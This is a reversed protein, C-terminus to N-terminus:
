RPAGPDRPQAGPRWVSVHYAVGFPADAYLTEVRPDLPDAAFLGALAQYAPRGEVEVEACQRTDLAALAQRDGASLARDITSQVAEAREDFYRPAKLSLTAAGDGVVLVASPEPEADLEARLRRGFTLAEDASADASILRCEAVAAPAVKERLWGAILAPLPLLPDPRRDAAVREAVSGALGVRVDVGYGRFTGVSDSGIVRDAEAGSSQEADAVGVVIWRSARASLEGAARLVAARLTALVGDAAAGAAGELEPVLVPPSPVLSAVCFM